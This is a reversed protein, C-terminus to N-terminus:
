QVELAIPQFSVAFEVADTHFLDAASGNEVILSGYRDPPSFVAIYGLQPVSDADNMVALSMSGIFILEVLGEALTSAAYGAYAADAGSAGGSNGVAASSDVSPSWYLNVLEGAVPDTAMELSMMVSYSTARTAGLDVKVSQRAALAGLSTVDIQVDTSGVIELSNNTTGGVYDTGHDAFVIQTGVTNLIDNAAWAQTVLLSVAFLLAFIRKM